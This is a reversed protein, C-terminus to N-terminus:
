KRYGYITVTGSLTTSGDGVLRFGTCVTYNDYNGGGSYQLYNPSSWESSQITHGKSKALYPNHIDMVANTDIGSSQFTLYHQSATAWVPYSTGGASTIGMQGGYYNATSQVTTTGSLYQMLIWASASTGANRIVIRYSDYTSSFCGVFNTSTSSLAGSTIYVLGSNGVATGGAVQQWASGGWIYTLDTDTEYIMQGEFPSAPRTSSTCVGAKILSSAGIQQSIGM